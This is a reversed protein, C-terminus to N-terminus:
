RVRVGLVVFIVVVILVILAIEVASAGREGRRRGERVAADVRGGLARGNEAPVNSGALLNLQTQLLGLVASAVTLWLPMSVDPSAAAISGWVITLGQGLVGIVYGIWYLATRVAPPITTLPNM